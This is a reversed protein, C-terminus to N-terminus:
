NNLMNFQTARFKLYIKYIDDVSRHLVLHIYFHLLSLLIMEIYHIESMSFHSLVHLTNTSIYMLWLLAKERMKNITSLSLQGPAPAKYVYSNHIFWPFAIM